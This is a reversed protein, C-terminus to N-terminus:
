SKLINQIAQATKAPNKAAFDLIDAHHSTSTSTSDQITQNKVTRMRLKYRFIMLILCVLLLIALMAISIASNKINFQSGINTAQSPLPPIMKNIVQFRDGRKSQFGITSKIAQQVQDQISPDVQDFVLTVFLKDIRGGSKNVETRKQNSSEIPTKEGEQNATPWSFGANGSHITEIKAQDFNLQVDIDIFTKKPNILKSAVDHAKKELKQETLEKFRLQEQFDTQNQALLISCGAAVWTAALLSTWKYPSFINSHNNTRM